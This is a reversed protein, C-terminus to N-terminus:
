VSARRAVPEGHEVEVRTPDADLRAADAPAPRAPEVVVVALAKV